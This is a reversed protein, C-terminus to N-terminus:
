KEKPPLVINFGGLTKIGLYNDTCLSSIPCSFPKYHAKPPLRTDKSDRSRRSRGGEHVVLQTGPNLQKVSFVAVGGKNQLNLEKMHALAKQIAFARAEAESKSPFNEVLVDEIAKQNQNFIRVGVSWMAPAQKKM